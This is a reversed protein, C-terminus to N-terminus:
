QNPLSWLWHGKKQKAQVHLKSRARDLTRTSVGSLKALAKMEKAKRPEGRLERKLFEEAADKPRVNHSGIAANLENVSIDEEGIFHLRPIGDDTKPAELEFVWSPGKPGVNHKLHAMVRHNPNDPHVGIRLASRAAAIMDVTGGGQYLANEQKMKTLHRILIVACGYDKAVSEIKDLLARVDSSDKIRTGPPVFSVWPDIIIM